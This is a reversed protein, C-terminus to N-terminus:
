KKRNRNFWDILMYDIHSFVVNDDQSTVVATRLYTAGSPTNTPAHALKHVPRQQPYEHLSSMTRGTCLISVSQKVLDELSDLLVLGTNALEVELIVEHTTYTM